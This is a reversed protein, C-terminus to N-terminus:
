SRPHVRGNSTKQSTPRHLLLRKAPRQAHCTLQAGLKKLRHQTCLQTAIAGDRRRGQLYAHCFSPWSPHHGKREYHHVLAAFYAKWFACLVHLIRLGGSAKITFFAKSRNADVPASGTYHMHKIVQHLTKRCTQHINKRGKRSPWTWLHQQARHLQITPRARHHTTRHPM